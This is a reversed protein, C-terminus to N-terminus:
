YAFLVAFSAGTPQTPAAPIGALMADATGVSLPNWAAVGPNLKLRQAVEVGKEVEYETEAEPRILTVGNAAGDRTNILKM